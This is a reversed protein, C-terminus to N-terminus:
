HYPIKQLFHAKALCFDLAEPQGGDDASVYALIGGCENAKVRNAYQQYMAYMGVLSLSYSYRSTNQFFSGALRGNILRKNAFLSALM